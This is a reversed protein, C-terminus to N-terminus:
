FNILKLLAGLIATSKRTTTAIPFFAFSFCDLWLIFNIKLLLKKNHHQPFFSRALFPLFLFPSLFTSPMM